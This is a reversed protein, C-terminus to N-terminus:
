GSKYSRAFLTLQYVMNKQKPTQTRVSLHAHTEEEHAIYPFRLTKEGRDIKRNVDFEKTLFSFRFHFRPFELKFAPDIKPYKGRKSRFAPTFTASLSISDQNQRCWGGTTHCNATWLWLIVFSSILYCVNYYIYTYKCIKEIKAENWDATVSFASEEQKM